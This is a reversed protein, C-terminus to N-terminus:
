QINDTKVEKDSLSQTVSSEDATQPRLQATDHNWSYYEQNGAGLVIAVLELARAAGDLGAALALLQEPAAAVTAAGQGAKGASVKVQLLTLVEVAGLPHHVLLDSDGHLCSIVHLALPFGEFHDLRFHIVEGVPERHNVGKHGPNM